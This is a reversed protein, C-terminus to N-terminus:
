KACIQHEEGMFISVTLFCEKWFSVRNVMSLLHL